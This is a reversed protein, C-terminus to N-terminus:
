RIGNSVTENVCQYYIFVLVVGECSQFYSLLWFKKHWGEGGRGALWSASPTGLQLKALSSHVFTGMFYNSLTQSLLVSFKDGIVSFQWIHFFIFLVTSDVIVYAKCNSPQTGCPVSLFVVMISQAQAACLKSSYSSSQWPLTGPYNYHQHLSM